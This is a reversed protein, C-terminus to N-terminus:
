DILRQNIIIEFAQNINQHDYEMMASNVKEWKLLTMERLNPPTNQVIKPTVGITLIKAM